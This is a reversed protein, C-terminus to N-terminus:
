QEKLLSISCPISLTQALQRFDEPPPRHFVRRINSTPEDFGLEVAHLMLRPASQWPDAFDRIYVPEGLVPHGAESLHIRIQHTRGTELRCEVLTVQGATALPRVHTIAREGPGAASRRRAAMRELSGRLGDGRNEVLHTEIKASHPTGHVLAWYVRQVTHARFQVDLRRKGHATLAFVVLGSTEKDLRHVIGLYPRRKRGETKELYRRVRSELTDTEGGTFPITLLGSPKNVVIYDVARAAVSEAELRGTTAPRPVNPDYALQGGAVIQRPDLCPHGDGLFIKGSTIRRRAEGGTISWLDRVAKELACPERGTPWARIEGRPRSSNADDM